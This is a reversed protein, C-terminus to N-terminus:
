NSNLSTRSTQDSVDFDHSRAITVLNTICEGHRKTELSKCTAYGALITAEQTTTCSGSLLLSVNSNTGVSEETYVTASVNGNTVRSTVLSKTTAIDDDTILSINSDSITIILKRNTIGCDIPDVTVLKTIDTDAGCSGEPQEINTAYEDNILASTICYDRAYYSRRM